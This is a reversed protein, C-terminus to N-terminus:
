RRLVMEFFFFANSQRFRGHWNKPAIKRAGCVLYLLEHPKGDIKVKVFVSRLAQSNGPMSLM